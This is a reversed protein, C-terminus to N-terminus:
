KLEKVKNIELIYRVGGESFFSIVFHVLKTVLLLYFNLNLYFRYDYNKLLQFRERM